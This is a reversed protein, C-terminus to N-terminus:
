AKVLEKPKYPQSTLHYANCFYCKYYRIENKNRRHAKNSTSALALKAAIPDRYKRKKCKMERGKLFRM